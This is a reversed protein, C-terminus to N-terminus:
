EISKWNKDKAWELFAKSDDEDLAEIALIENSEYLEFPSRIVVLVVSDSGCLIGYLEVNDSLGEWRQFTVLKRWDHSKFSEFFEILHQKEKDVVDSAFVVYHHGTLKRGCHPCQDIMSLLSAEVTEKAHSTRRNSAGAIKKFLNM